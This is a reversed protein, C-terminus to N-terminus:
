WSRDGGAGNEAGARGPRTIILDEGEATAEADITADSLADALGEEVLLLKAGGYEVVHDGVSPRDASLGFQGRGAGESEALSLRLGVDDDRIDAQVKLRALTVKARETVILM